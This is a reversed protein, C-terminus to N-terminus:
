YENLIDEPAFAQRPLPSVPPLPTDGYEADEIAPRRNGHTETLKAQRLTAAPNSRGQRTGEKSARGGRAHRREMEDDSVVGAALMRAESLNDKHRGRSDTILLKSLTQFDREAEIMRGAIDQQEGLRDATRQMLARNFERVRELQEADGEAREALAMPQVHKEELPFVLTCDGNVAIARGPDDPDHRVTWRVDPHDRFEPAFCDYTRKVGNITVHLGSPQMLNKRGTDVGFHLLYDTMSMPILKEQPMESFRRVYEDHKEAREAEVMAALEAALEEEDPFEGRYRDLYRTNPQLSKKSTVGFGTWNKQQQCYKRNFYNFWSEIIKAKANGVRAPTVKAAVAAYDPTMASIAYNDSQIQAVRYMRGFLAETHRLANRLAARILEPTEHTGIAYGVPYRTCADLIVVVALREYYTARGDKVGRYRLEANWGDLTWYLLPWQPARRRVQMMVRNNYEGAGNRRAYIVSSFKRRWSAVTGRTVPKWKVGDPHRANMESALGNYWRACQADDFKRPDSLIMVMAAAQEETAVKAANANGNRYAAHVLAEYGEKRYQRYKRELSRPNAPLSHPWRTRDLEQAAESLEDWFRAPRGGLAARRARRDNMMRGMADLVVADAYYERRKGAPLRRGDATEYGDLWAAAEASEEILGELVNEKVARYPDGVLARIRAKFREPMSDYAVLAPTERCGRRLVRLDGARSLKDYGPKSMIGAQVLWGAEVCLTNNYYQM